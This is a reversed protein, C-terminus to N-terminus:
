SNISRKVPLGVISGKDPLTINFWVFISILGSLGLIINLFFTVNKNILITTMDISILSTVSYLISAVFAMPFSYQFAFSTEPTFFQTQNDSM